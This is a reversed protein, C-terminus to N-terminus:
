HVQVVIDPTDVSLCKASVLRELVEFLCLSDGTLHVARAVDVDCGDARVDLGDISLSDKLKRCFMVLACVLVYRHNAATQVINGNRNALDVILM